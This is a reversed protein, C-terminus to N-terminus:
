SSFFAQSVLLRYKLPQKTGIKLFKLKHLHFYVIFYIGNYHNRRSFHKCLHILSSSLATFVCLKHVKQLLFLIHLNKKYVCIFDTVEVMHGQCYKMFYIIVYFNISFCSCTCLLENDVM